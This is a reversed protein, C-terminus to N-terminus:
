VHWWTVMNLKKTLYGKRLRHMSKVLKNTDSNNSWTQSVPQGYTRVSNSLILNGSNRGTKTVPYKIRPFPLRGSNRDPKQWRTEYTHFIRNVLLTFMQTVSQNCVRFSPQGSTCLHQQRRNGSFIPVLLPQGSTRVFQSHAIKWKRLNTSIFAWTFTARDDNGRPSAQLNVCVYFTYIGLGVVYIINRRGAYMRYAARARHLSIGSIRPRALSM